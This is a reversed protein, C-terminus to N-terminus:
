KTLRREAGVPQDLEDILKRIEAMKDDPAVLILRNTRQDPVFRARSGPAGSVINSLIQAMSNAQSNKLPVIVTTEHQPPPPNGGAGRGMGRGMFPGQPQPPMPNQERRTDDDAQSPPGIRSRKFYAHGRGQGFNGDVTVLEWGLEGLHNMGRELDGGGAEQVDAHRRVAYEWRHNTPAGDRGPPGMSKFAKGGRGGKVMKKDFDDPQQAVVSAVCIAAVLCGGLLVRRM